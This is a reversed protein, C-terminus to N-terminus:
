RSPAPAASRARFSSAHDQHKPGHTTLPDGDSGDDHWAPAVPLGPRQQLRSAAELAGSLGHLILSHERNRPQRRAPRCIRAPRRQERPGSCRWSRLIPSDRTASWRVAIASAAWRTDRDQSRPNQLLQWEAPRQEAPVWCAIWETRDSDLPLTKPKNNKPARIPETHRKGKRAKAARPSISTLLPPGIVARIKRPSLARSQSGQPM